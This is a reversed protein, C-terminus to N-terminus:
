PAAVKPAHGFPERNQSGPFLWAFIVFSLLFAAFDLVSGEPGITGGTLWRPGHFSSNLLHGTAMGGSDPVSYIFTEAYDGAAHLGIAFWLTGTRRLTFCAFLGFLMVSLAGVWSEGTNGLHLVGFVASLFFAAPWFGIGQSLTFQAYGRFLFEEVIGVLFFGFAWVIAYKVLALGSLALGGFSFGHLAFIGLIELSVLTLGWLVGQWFRSGLAGSLSLGYSWFSKREIRAMILTALFLGIIGISEFALVFKPTVIGHMADEVIRQLAPLRTAVQRTVLNWITFLLVFLLFRWGARLGNPGYFVKQMPSRSSTLSTTPQDAPVPDMHLIPREKEQKIRRRIGTQEALIESILAPPVTV